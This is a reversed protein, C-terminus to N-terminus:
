CHTSMDCYRCKKQPGITYLITLELLKNKLSQENHHVISVQSSNLDKKNDVKIGLKTRIDTWLFNDKRRVPPKWLRKSSVTSTVDDNLGQCRDIQLDTDEQLGREKELSDWEEEFGQDQHEQSIASM